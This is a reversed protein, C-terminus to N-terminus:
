GAAALVLGTVALGVGAIRAMPRANNRLAAFSLGLGALHLLITAAFFGLAFQAPSAGPAIEAGHAFGHAAGFVAIAGAGVLAPLKLDFAVALGLAMVSALIVAEVAPFPAGLRAAVFGLLMFGAFTAPWIQWRTRFVLGSWLGVALMALMHDLGTFPHIFGETHGPHAVAPTAVALACLALVGPTLALSTIRM